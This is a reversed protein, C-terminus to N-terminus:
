QTTFYKNNSNIYGKLERLADMTLKVSEGSYKEPSFEYLKKKIQKNLPLEKVAKIYDEKSWTLGRSIKKIKDYPNEDGQIRLMCQLLSSLIEWHNDLEKKLIERRFKVRILVDSMEEIALLINALAPGVHRLAYKDVLARQLRSQMIMGIIAELQKEGYYSHWESFETGIPNIKHPMGSSGVREQSDSWTIYGLANYMWLDKSLKQLLRATQSINNFIKIQNEHSESQTVYKQPIFGFSKIFDDSVKEWNVNINLTQAIAILEARTGVEGCAKASMPITKLEEVHQKLTIGFSALEKGATTTLAPVGHTRGLMFTDKEKLILKYLNLILTNIMPMYSTEIFAKLSINFAINDVDTATLGIPIYNIVDKLNTNKLKAQLYREVAMTDHNILLDLQWIEKANELSFDEQLKDLIISEEPKLKKIKRDSTIVLKYKILHKLWAIDVIIRNKMTSYESFYESTKELRGHWRSTEPTLNYLFHPTENRPEKIESNTYLM